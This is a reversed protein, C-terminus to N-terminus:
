GRVTRAHAPPRVTQPRGIDTFTVSVTTHPGGSPAALTASIQQVVGHGDAWLSLSTVHEGPILQGSMHIGPVSGPRTAVLERLRLGNDVKYGATVFRAAPTLDRLLTRPDAASLQRWTPHAGTVHEWGPNPPWEADYYYQGNVLLQVYTTATSGPSGDHRAVSIDQGSYIVDTVGYDMTSGQLMDQFRIQARGSRSLATSSVALVHQVAAATLVTGSAANTNGTARGPGGGLQAAAVAGACGVAVVGAAIAVARASLWYRATASCLAGERGPRRSAVEDPSIPRAGTEILDRIQQRLDTAM